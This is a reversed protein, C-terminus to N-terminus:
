AAKRAGRAALVQEVAKRYLTPLGAEGISDIPEWWGEDGPESRAVVALDLSFHTFVHRVTALPPATSPAAETWDSGPLAAMGGLLGTAPRRVLWLSRDREVWWAVGFRHPRQRKPKPAPFQEPQGSAFGACCSQLPCAHCAPMKPRCITAGLDMMAQALDGSAAGADLASVLQRIEALSASPLGHLRAM